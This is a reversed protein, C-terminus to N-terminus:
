RHGKKRQVKSRRKAKKRMVFRVLKKNAKRVDEPVLHTYINLTTKIDAHRMLEQQVKASARLHALLTAYSHRFTNWGVDEGLGAKVAAPVIHNQQMHYPHYPQRGGEDPSAFVWDTPANFETNSQWKRLIQALAPDIPMWRRSYKTKVPGVHGDVIARRVRVALTRWDFDKWKLAAIESIRLGLCMAVTVMIRVHELEIHCLLLHFERVNLTRPEDEQKTADKVRVLSLPNTGLKILDWRQACRFLMSFANRIHSRTKPKRSMEKLWKEIPYPKIKALPYEGWRPKIHNCLLNRYFRRTSYRDPLEEVMYRDILGGVSVTNGNPNEPNMALDLGEVANRAHSKTPFDQITGVKVALLKKSGDPQPERYRLFWEHRGNKRPKLQLCGEQHRTRKFKM